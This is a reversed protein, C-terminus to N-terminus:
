IGSKAPIVAGEIVKLYVIRFDNMIIITDRQSHAGM